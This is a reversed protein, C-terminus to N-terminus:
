AAVGHDGGGTKSCHICCGDNWEPEVGWEEGISREIQLAIVEHDRVLQELMEIVIKVHQISGQVALSVLTKAFEAAQKVLEEGVAHRLRRLITGVGSPVITGAGPQKDAGSDEVETEM